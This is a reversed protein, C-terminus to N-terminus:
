PHLHSARAGAPRMRAARAMTMAVGVLKRPPAAKSRSKATRARLEGFIVSGAGFLLAPMWLYRGVQGQGLHHDRVLYKSGWLLMVTTVPAAAAVM